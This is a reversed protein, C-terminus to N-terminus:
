IKQVFNNQKAVKYDRLICLTIDICKRDEDARHDACGTILKTVIAACRIGAYRLNDEWAQRCLEWERQALRNMHLVEITKLENITTLIEDMLGRIFEETLPETYHIDPQALNSMKIETNTNDMRFKLQGFM